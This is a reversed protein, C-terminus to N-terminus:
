GFEPDVTGDDPCDNNDDTKLQAIEKQHKRNAAAISKKVRNNQLQIGVKVIDLQKRFEETNDELESLYLLHQIDQNLLKDTQNVAKGLGWNRITSYPLSLEEAIASASYGEATLQKACDYFESLPPRPM